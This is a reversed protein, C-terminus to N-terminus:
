LFSQFLWPLSSAADNSVITLAGLVYYAGLSKSDVNVGSNVLSEMYSLLENKIDWLNPEGILRDIDLSMFPNGFPPCIERKINRSLQARYNWIDVLEEIFRYIQFRNLSLFWQANSYNGLENIHQFLTIARLEIATENSVQKLADEINLNIKIRLIRSVRIITRMNKLVFEPITTRNYPNKIVGNSKLLLNHLSTIDFGYVFEDVDKYSIFQHFPIEEIPEMSIFDTTNTCLSRKMLAPGHVKIYKRILYGRFITQIRVVYSSEHLYNYIRQQLMKKPGSVKLHYMKAFEKLENLKYKTEFM